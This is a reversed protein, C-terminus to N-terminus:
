GKFGRVAEAGTVFSFPSRPKIVCLIQGLQHFFVVGLIGGPAKAVTM